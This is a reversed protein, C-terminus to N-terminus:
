YTHYKKDSLELKNVFCAMSQLFFDNKISTVIDEFEINSVREQKDYEEVNNVHLTLFSADTVDENSGFNM